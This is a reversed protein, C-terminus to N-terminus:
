SVQQCVHRRLSVMAIPVWRKLHSTNWEKEGLLLYWFGWTYDRLRLKVRMLGYLLFATADIAEVKM